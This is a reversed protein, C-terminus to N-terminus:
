LEFMSDKLMLPTSSSEISLPNLRGPLLAIALVSAIVFIVISVIYAAHEINCENLLLLYANLSWAYWKACDPWCVAWNSLLAWVRLYACIRLVLKRITHNISVSTCHLFM